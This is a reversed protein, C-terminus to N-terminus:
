TRSIITTARATAEDTNRVVAAELVRRITDLLGAIPSNSAHTLRLVGDITCVGVMQNDALGTTAFPGWLANLKLNRYTSAIPQKGLNSLLLDFAMVASLYAAIGQITPKAAIAARLEKLESLAGKRTKASQLNTKTKRAVDWFSAGRPHADVNISKTLYVGCSTGIEHALHRANIPSNTRVPRARWQPSLRRGAERTAAAVAGHVTTQEMRARALLQSTLEPALALTEVHPIQEDGPRLAKSTPAMQAAPLPSAAAVETELVIELPQVLPLPPLVEGSLMRLLDEILFAGGMADLVSHHAVLILTSQRASQLLTARVLPATSPDFRTGLERAVEAQWATGPDEVVRLAIMAGPVHHFCTGAQADGSICTSLLPHRKQLSVLAANWAHTPYHRDIEAVMAFHISRNQDLLWFLHETDGLPRVRHCQENEHDHRHTTRQQERM